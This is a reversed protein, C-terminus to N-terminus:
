DTPKILTLPTIAPMPLFVVDDGGLNLAKQAFIKTFAYTSGAGDAKPDDEFLSNLKDRYDLFKVM